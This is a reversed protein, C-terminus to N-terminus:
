PQAGPTVQFSWVCNFMMGDGQNRAVDGGSFRKSKSTPRLVVGYEGALLRATPSIEYNGRALRRSTVGVRDELFNSYIQWDAVSNSRADEQGQTAGVLRWANQLPTLKVIVPEFDDPNIGPVRSFDVGFRPTSLSLSNASVPDAVAWVYTVSPKRQTLLNSFISGAQSLMSGTAMSSSHTMAEAAATNVGGQLAQTLVVNSLSSPKNKTEALQTREVAMPAGAHSSSTSDAGALLQVLPEAPLSSARPVGGPAGAGIAVGSVTGGRMGSGPQSGLITPGQAMPSGSAPEAVTPAQATMGSTLGLPTSAQPQRNAGAAIVADIVRKDVGANHLAILAGPSTDFNGPGAQITSLIASEPVGSRVMNIVDQNTVPNQTQQPLAQLSGLTIALCMGLLGTRGASLKM